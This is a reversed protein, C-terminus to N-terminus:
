VRGLRHSAVAKVLDLFEEPTLQGKAQNARDSVWQINDLDLAKEKYRSVPLIHDITANVGLALTEGTYPCRYEQAELKAKLVTWYKNVRFYTISRHKLYCTECYAKYGKLPHIIAPVKGCGQCFGNAKLLERRERLSLPNNSSCEKCLKSGEAKRHSVCRACYGKSRRQRRYNRMYELRSERRRWIICSDCVRHHTEKPM